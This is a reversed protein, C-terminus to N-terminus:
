QAMVGVPGGDTTPTKGDIEKAAKATEQGCESKAKTRVFGSKGEALTM